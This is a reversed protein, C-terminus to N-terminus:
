LVMRVSEIQKLDAFLKELQEKSEATLMFSVSIFNGKRSTRQSVRDTTLTPDHKVVTDYVERHFDERVDGVVKIPYDCPFTIRPPEETM